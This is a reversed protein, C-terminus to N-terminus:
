FLHKLKGNELHFDIAVSLYFRHEASQLSFGEGDRAWGSCYILVLWGVPLSNRLASGEAPLTLKQGNKGHIM